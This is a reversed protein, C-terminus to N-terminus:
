EYSCVKTVMKKSFEELNIKDALYLKKITCIDLDMLIDKRNRGHNLLLVNSDLRIYKLTVEMEEKHVIEIFKWLNPHPSQM